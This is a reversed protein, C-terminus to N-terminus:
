WRSSESHLEACSKCVWREDILGPGAYPPNKEAHLEGGCTACHKAGCYCPKTEPSKKKKTKTMRAEVRLRFFPSGLYPGREM